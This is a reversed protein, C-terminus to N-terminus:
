TQLNEPHTKSVLSGVTYRWAASCPPIGAICGNISLAVALLEIASETAYTDIPRFGTQIGGLSVFKLCSITLFNHSIHLKTSTFLCKKHWHTALLQQKSVIALLSVM